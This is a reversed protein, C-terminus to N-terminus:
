DRDRAGRPKGDVYFFALGPDRRALPSPPGSPPVRAPRPPRGEGRATEPPVSPTDRGEVIGQAPRPAQAVRAPSRPAPHGGGPHAPGRVADAEWRPWVIGVHPVRPDAQRVRSGRM